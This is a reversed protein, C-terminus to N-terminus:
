SIMLVQGALMCYRAAIQGGVFRWEFPTEYAPRINEASLMLRFKRYPDPPDMTYVSFDCTIIECYYRPQEPDFSNTMSEQIISLKGPSWQSSNLFHKDTQRDTNLMKERVM